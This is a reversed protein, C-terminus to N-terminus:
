ALEQFKGENLVANKSKKQFGDERRIEMDQLIQELGLVKPWPAGINRGLEQDEGDHKGIIYSLYFIKTLRNTIKCAQGADEAM